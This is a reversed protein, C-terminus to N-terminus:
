DAGNVKIQDVGTMALAQDFTESVDTANMTPSLKWPIIYRSFDDLVTSLHSIVSEAPCGTM